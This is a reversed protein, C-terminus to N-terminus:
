LLQSPSKAPYPMALLISAPESTRNLLQRKEGPAFCASDHRCLVVETRIGDLESVLTVQGELVVYHKEVPSGDLSTHGGPAIQSVGLWLSQSPGAEHGQLRLCRMDFHNPAVYGPANEFRTINM